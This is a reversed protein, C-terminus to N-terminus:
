YRGLLDDDFRRPPTSVSFTKDDVLEEDDSNPFLDIKGNTDGTVINTAKSCFLVYRGDPTMAPYQSDPSSGPAATESGDNTLSVREVLWAHAATHSLILFLSVLFFIVPIQRKKM